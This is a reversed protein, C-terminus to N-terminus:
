QEPTWSSIRFGGSAAQRLCVQDSNLLGVVLGGRTGELGWFMIFVCDTQATGTTKISGWDATLAAGRLPIGFDHGLRSITCGGRLGLFHTLFDVVDLITNFVHM